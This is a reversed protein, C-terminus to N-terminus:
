IHIHRRSNGYSFHTDRETDSSAIQQIRLVPIIQVTHSVEGILHPTVDTKTYLDRKVM